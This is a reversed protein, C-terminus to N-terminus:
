HRVPWVKCGKVTSSPTEMHTFLERLQFSFCVGFVGFLCVSISAKYWTQNYNTWHNQLVLFFIHFTQIFVSLRLFQRVVFSLRDSFGVHAELESSRFSYFKIQKIYRSPLFFLFVSSTFLLILFPHINFFLYWPLYLHIEFHAYYRFFVRFYLELRSVNIAIGEPIDKWVGTRVFVRRKNVHTTEVSNAALKVVITAM